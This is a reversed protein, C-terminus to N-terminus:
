QHKVHFTILMGSPRTNWTSRNELTPDDPIQASESSFIAITGSPSALTRALNMSVRDPRVARMTVLGAWSAYEDRGLLAEFRVAEVVATVGLERAAERLFAAKRTRSEIMLLEPSGLALALPLAPSGGGSGLDALRVGAPFHEASSVPELLLRDIAQAPDLLSTLNIKRNWHTLLRYYSLLSARLSDAVRVDAQEAREDFIRAVDDSM